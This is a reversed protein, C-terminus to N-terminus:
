KRKNDICQSYIGELKHVVKEWSYNEQIYKQLNDTLYEQSDVRIMSAKISELRDPNLYWLNDKFIEKTGGKQTLVVKKGRIGAELAVLSCTEFLSPVIVAKAAYYADSLLAGDGDIRGTFTVTEGALSKCKNYYARNGTNASGIVVLPAHLENAAQILVHLNKVPSINGVFLFYDSIGFKDCFSNSPSITSLNDVGNNLVQMEVSPEYLNQFRQLELESTPLIIDPYNVRYRLDEQHRNFLKKISYKLNYKFKYLVSSRAWHTPTLVFPKGSNHYAEWLSTDITSFHHILDFDNLNTESFSFFSVSHGNKELYYKIKEMIVEGGGPNQFALPHTNFLIKM